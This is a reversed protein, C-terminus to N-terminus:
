TDLVRKDNFYATGDFFLEVNVVNKDYINVASSAKTLDHFEEPSKLLFSSNVRKNKSIM